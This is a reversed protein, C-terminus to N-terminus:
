TVIYIYAFGTGLNISDYFLPTGQKSWFPLLIAYGGLMAIRRYLSIDSIIKYCYGFTFFIYHYCLQTCNFKIGFKHMLAGLFLYTGIVIIWKGIKREQMWEAFSFISSYVFLNYLFWLGNDPYLLAHFSMTLDFAGDNLLPSIFVWVIFPVLLQVSRKRITNPRYGGKNMLYGSIFFFLPMHFSYVFRFVMNSEYNPDNFQISHGLIVLIILLGKLNDLYFLRETM